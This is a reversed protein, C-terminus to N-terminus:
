LPQYPDRRGRGPEAAGAPGADDGPGPEGQPDQAAESGPEDRASSPRESM